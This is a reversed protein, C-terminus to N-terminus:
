TYNFKACVYYSDNSLYRFNTKQQESKTGEGFSWLYKMPRSNSSEPFAKFYFKGCTDKVATIEIEPKVSDCPDCATLTISKCITTDKRKCFNYVVMCVQHTGSTTFTYDVKNGQRIANNSSDIFWAVSTCSTDNGYARMTLKLCSATHEFGLSNQAKSENSGLFYLLSLLFIWSRTFIIKM